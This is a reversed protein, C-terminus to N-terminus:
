LPATNIVNLMLLCWSAGEIERKREKKRERERLQEIKGRERAGRERERMCIIPHNIQRCIVEADDNDWDEPCIYGWKNGFCM